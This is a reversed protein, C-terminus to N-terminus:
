FMYLHRAHRQQLFFFFLDMTNQAHTNLIYGVTTDGLYLTEELLSQGHTIKVMNVDQRQNTDNNVTVTWEYQEWQHGIAVELRVNGLLRPNTFFGFSAPRSRLTLKVRTSVYYKNKDKQQV